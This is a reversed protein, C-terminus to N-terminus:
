DKVETGQSSWIQWRGDRKIFVDTFRTRRDFKAGKDDTGQSLYLGTAIAREGDVRVDLERTEAVSTKSKGFEALFNDKDELAGDRSSVGSYDDALNREFWAKDSKLEAINWELDMYRIQGADGIPHGMDSVVQWKGGIKEMQHVSRTYRTKVADGTGSTISNRHTITASNGTCNVVYFDHKPAPTPESKARDKEAQEVANDIATKRDVAAGPSLNSYGDAYIGDLAARDGKRGAESWDRDFKELAAQDAASCAAHANAALMSGALLLGIKITTSPLKM